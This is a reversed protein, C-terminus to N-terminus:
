YSWRFAGHRWSSRYPANCASGHVRVMSKRATLGASSWSRKQGYVRVRVYANPGNM